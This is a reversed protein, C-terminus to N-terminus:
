PATFVGQLVKIRKEELNRLVNEVKQDRSSGMLLGFDVGVGDKREGKAGLIRLWQLCRSSVDRCVKETYGASEFRLRFAEPTSLFSISPDSAWPVPFYPPSNPGACIEYFVFLGGPRLVRTTEETLGQKDEINMTAHQSWVVDFSRAAFPMACADGCSFAVRGKLNVRRALVDATRCYETIMDLGTVACGYEEALTRAPGGVGSGVDLVAHGPGLKAVKALERTADIGRLHFQDLVSLTTRSVTETRRGAEACADVMREAINPQHYHEIIARAQDNM